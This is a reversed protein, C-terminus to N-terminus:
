MMLYESFVKIRAIMGDTVIQFQFIIQSIRGGIDKLSRKGCVQRASGTIIM